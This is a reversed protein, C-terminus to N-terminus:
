NDKYTKTYNKADMKKRLDTNEQLLDSVSKQLKKIEQAQWDGEHDDDINKSTGAFKVKKAEKSVFNKIPNGEEDVTAGDKM